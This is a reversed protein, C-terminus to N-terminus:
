WVFSIIIRLCHSWQRKELSGAAGV